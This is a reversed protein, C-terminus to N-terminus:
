PSSPICLDVYASTRSWDEAVWAPLCVAESVEWPVCWRAWQSRGAVSVQGYSCAYGGAMATAPLLLFGLVLTLLLLLKLKNKM